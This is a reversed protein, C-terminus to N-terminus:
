PESFSLKAPLVQNLTERTSKEWGRRPQLAMVVPGTWEGLIAQQPRLGIPHDFLDKVVRSLNTKGLFCIAQPHLFSIEACLHRQACYQLLPQPPAPKSIPRVKATHVFFFGMNHFAENGEQLDLSNLSCAYKEELLAFLGRRLLDRTSTYFHGGQSPGEDPTPAVGVFLVSVQSPPTPIEGLQLPRRVEKPWRTCCERCRAIDLQCENWTM